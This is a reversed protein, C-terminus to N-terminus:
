IIETYKKLREVLFGTQFDKVADDIQELIQPEGPDRDSNRAFFSRGHEECSFFALTDCM